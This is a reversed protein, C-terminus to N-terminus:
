TEPEYLVVRNRGSHKASYLAKDAVDNLSDADQAHEPLGAIGVSITLHTPLDRALVFPTEAVARRLREGLTAADDSWTGPVLVVFEEGGFRGVFDIGRASRRLVSGVQRLVADGAAHGHEDNIRKFHDLDIFCLSLPQRYRHAREVEEALRDDLARRNPLGTVPDVNARTDLERRAQELQRAARAYDTQAIAQRVLIVMSFVAAVASIIAARWGQSIILAAVAVALGVAVALYPVAARLWGRTGQDPQPTAGSAQGILALSNDVRGQLIGLASMALFTAAPFAAWSTRPGIRSGNLVRDLAFGSMTVTLCVWGMALGGSRSAWESKPSLVTWWWMLSAALPLAIMALAVVLDLSSASPHRSDVSRVILLLGLSLGCAVFGVGAYRWGVKVVQGRQRIMSVTAFVGVAAGVIRLLDTGLPLAKVYRDAIVAVTSAILAAGLLGLSGAMLRWGAVRDERRELWATWLWPIIAACTTISATTFAAITLTRTTEFAAGLVIALVLPTGLIWEEPSPYRSASDNYSGFSPQPSNESWTSGVSMTLVSRHLLRGFPSGSMGILTAAATRVNLRFTRGIRCRERAIKPPETSTM